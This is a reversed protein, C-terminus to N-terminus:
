LPANACVHLYQGCLRGSIRVSDRGVGLARALRLDRGLGVRPRRDADLFPHHGGQSGPAEESDSPLAGIEVLRQVWGPLRGM